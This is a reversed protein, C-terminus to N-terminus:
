IVFLSITIMIFAIAYQLIMQLFWGGAKKYYNNEIANAWLVLFPLLMLIFIIEICSWFLQWQITNPVGEILTPITLIIDIIKPITYSIAVFLLDIPFHILEVRIKGKCNKTGFISKAVGPLLYKFIFLIVPFIIALIKTWLEIVNM